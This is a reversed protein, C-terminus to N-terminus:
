EGLDLATQEDSFKATAKKLSQHVLPLELKAGGLM